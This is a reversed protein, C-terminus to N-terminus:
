ADTAGYRFELVMRAVSSGDARQCVADVDATGGDGSPVVTAEVCLREGPHLGGLLRLSRMGSLSPLVGDREGLAALVAQHVTELVFVGPYITRDPFHAALYPDDVTVDKWASVHLGADREEVRMGDVASLPAAYTRTLTAAETL